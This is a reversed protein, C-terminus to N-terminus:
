INFLKSFGTMEFVPMISEPVNQLQLRHGAAKAAKLMVILSRLGASSIYELASCDMTIDHTVPNILKAVKDDFQPATVTDLRGAITLAKVGEKDEITLNM